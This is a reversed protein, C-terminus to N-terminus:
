TEHQSRISLPKNDRRNDSQIQTAQSDTGISRACVGLTQIHAAALLQPSETAAAKLSGKTRQLRSLMLHM